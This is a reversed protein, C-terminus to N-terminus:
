VLGAYLTSRYSRAASAADSETRRVMACFMFLLCGHMNHM